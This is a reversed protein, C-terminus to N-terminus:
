RGCIKSWVAEGVTDPVVAGAFGDGRTSGLVKEISYYVAERNTTTRQKCNYSDLSVVKRVGTFRGQTFPETYHFRTWRKRVDGVHTGTSSDQYVAVNGDLYVSKWKSTTPPLPAQSQSESELFQYPITRVDEVGVPKKASYHRKGDKIYSYVAGQVVRGEPPTTGATQPESALGGGSFAALLCVLLIRKDM